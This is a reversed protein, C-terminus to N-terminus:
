QDGMHNDPGCKVTKGVEDLYVKKGEIWDWYYARDVHGRSASPPGWSSRWASLRQQLQKAIREQREEDAIGQSVDSIGHICM